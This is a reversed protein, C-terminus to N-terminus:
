KLTGLETKLIYGANEIKHLNEWHTMAATDGSHYWVFAGVETFSKIKGIEYRSGIQCIVLEGIEFGHTNM